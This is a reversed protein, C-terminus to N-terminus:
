QKNKKNGKKEKGGLGIRTVKQQEIKASAYDDILVKRTNDVVLTLQKKTVSVMFYRLVWMIVQMFNDRNIYKLRDNVVSAAAEPNIKIEIKM